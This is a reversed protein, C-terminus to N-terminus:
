GQCWCPLHVRDLSLAGQWKIRSARHQQMQRLKPEDILIPDLSVEVRSHRDCVLCFVFSGGVTRLRIAQARMGAKDRGHYPRIAFPGSASLIRLVRTPRRRLPKKGGPVRQVRPFRAPVTSLAFTVGSPVKLGKRCRGWWTPVCWRWRGRWGVISRRGQAFARPALGGHATQAPQVERAPGRGFEPQPVEVGGTPTSGRCKSM